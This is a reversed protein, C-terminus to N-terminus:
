SQVPTQVQPTPDPSVEKAPDFKHQTNVDPAIDGVPASPVLEADLANPALEAADFKDVEPDPNVATQGEPVPLQGEVNSLTADDM